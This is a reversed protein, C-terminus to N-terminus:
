QPSPLCRSILWFSVFVSAPFLPCPSKPPLNTLFIKGKFSSATGRSMRPRKTNSAEAKEDDKETKHRGGGHIDDDESEDVEDEEAESNSTEDTTPENHLHYDHPPDPPKMMAKARPEVDGPASEDDDDDAEDKDDDGEEEKDQGLYAHHSSGLKNDMNTSPHNDRNPRTVADDPGSQQGHGAGQRYFVIPLLSLLQM